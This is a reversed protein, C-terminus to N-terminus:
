HGFFNKPFGITEAVARPFFGLLGPRNQLFAGFDARVDTILLAIAEVGRFPLPDNIGRSIM